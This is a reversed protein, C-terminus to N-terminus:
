DIIRGTNQDVTISYTERAAMFDPSNEIQYIAYGARNGSADYAALLVYWNPDMMGIGNSGGSYEEDSSFEYLEGYSGYLDPILASMIQSDRFDAPIFREKGETLSDSGVQEAHCVYRNGDSWGNLRIKVSGFIVSLTDGGWSATYSGARGDFLKVVYHISLELPQVGEGEAFTYDLPLDIGDGPVLSAIDLEDGGNPIILTYAAIADTLEPTQEVRYISYGIRDGAIDYLALMLYWESDLAEPASFSSSFDAAARLEYYGAYSEAVNSYSRSLAYTGDEFQKPFWSIIDSTPTSRVACIYSRGDSWSSATVSVMGFLVTDNKRSYPVHGNPAAEAVYEASLGVPQIGEAEILTLLLPVRISGGPFLTEEYDLSVESEEESDHERPADTVRGDPDIYRLDSGILTDATLDARIGFYQEEWQVPTLAKRFKCYGSHSVEESGLLTAFQEPDTTNACVSLVCAANEPCRYAVSVLFETEGGSLFVDPDFDIVTIMLGEEGTELFAIDALLMAFDESEGCAQVGRNVTDEAAKYDGAGILAESLGIYAGPQKPDIEIAATFAIVAERYNGNSLCRLGLDYQDAWSPAFSAAPEPITSACSCLLAATALIFLFMWSKKMHYTCKRRQPETPANRKGRVIGLERLSTSM